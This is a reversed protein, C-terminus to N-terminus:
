PNVIEAIEEIVSKAELRLTLPSAEQLARGTDLAKGYATQFRIYSSLVNFGWAKITEMALLADNKSGTKSIVFFIKDKSVAKQVLERALELSPQIDDISPSCPVLVLDSNLALDLSTTEAAPRGDIILMDCQDRLRLAADVRNFLGCEIPSLRAEERRKTWNMSTRQFVDLDALVTKWKAKSFGVALSRALASKSGGGKQGICSIVLGM